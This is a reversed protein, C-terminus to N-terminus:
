CSCFIAFLLLHDASKIIVVTGNTFTCSAVRFPTFCDLMLFSLSWMVGEMELGNAGHDLCVAHRLDVALRIDDIMYRHSYRNLTDHRSARSILTWLCNLEGDM